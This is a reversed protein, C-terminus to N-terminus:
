KITGLKRRNKFEIKGRSTQVYKWALYRAMELGAWGFLPIWPYIESLRNWIAHGLPLNKYAGNNDSKSGNQSFVPPIIGGMRCNRYLALDVDIGFWDFTRESIRPLSSRHIIYCGLHVFGGKYIPDRIKESIFGLEPELNLIDLQDPLYERAWELAQYFREPHDLNLDDEFICLYPSNFEDSNWIWWHSEFCGYLGGQPHKDVTWWHIRDLIGLKRFLRESERRRDKRDVLNICVFDFDEM